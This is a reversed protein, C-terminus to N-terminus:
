VIGREREAALTQREIVYAILAADSDFYKKEQIQAPFPWFIKWQKKQSMYVASGLVKDGLDFIIRPVGGVTENYRGGSNEAVTKVYERIQIGEAEKEMPTQTDIKDM